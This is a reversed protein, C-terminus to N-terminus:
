FYKGLKGKKCYKCGIVMCSGKVFNFSFKGKSYAHDTIKAAIKLSCEKISNLPPYLSGKALDQETVLESLAQKVNKFM